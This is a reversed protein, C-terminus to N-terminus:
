LYYLIIYYLYINIQKSFFIGNNYTTRSELSDVCFNEYEFLNNIPESEKKLGYKKARMESIKVTFITSSDKNELIFM